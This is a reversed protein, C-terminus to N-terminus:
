HPEGWVRPTQFDKAKPRNKPAVAEKAFAALRERLEKVKAPEDKALNTKENPDKALNFLEVQDKGQDAKDAEAPADGNDAAGGNLVLKWDGARVAGSRPTTNLLIADHPSPKGEAIAPWADKGDPPLKQEL